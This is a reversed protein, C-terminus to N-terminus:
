KVEGGMKRFEDYDFEESVFDYTNKVHYFLHKLSEEKEISVDDAVDMMLQMFRYYAMLKLSKDISKLIDENM